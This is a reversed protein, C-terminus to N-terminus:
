KPQERVSHCLMLHLAGADHVILCLKIRPQRINIFEPSVDSWAVSTLENESRSCECACKDHVQWIAHDRVM